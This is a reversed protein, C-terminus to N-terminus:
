KLRPLINEQILIGHRELLTGTGRELAMEALEYDIYAKIENTRSETLREEADLVHFTTRLGAERRNIEGEFREQTLQRARRTAEIRKEATQMDRVATRLEVLIQDELARKQLTLRRKELEARNIAAQATRREIPWEFALGISWDHFDSSRLERNAGSFTDDLGTLAGTATVDLKPLLDNEAKRLSQEQSQMLSGFERYEPRKSRATAWAGELLSRADVPRVVSRPADAPMIQVAERLMSPDILRKLRDMAAQMANEATLIGERQSAVGAEAETVDVRALVGKEFKKQNEELLREAVKEAQRKVELTERALVLDWYSQHVAVVQDVIAKELRDIAAQRGLRALIVGTYQGVEGRGRLLPMTLSLALSENYTPNIASSFFANSATRDTRFSLDYAMGFPLVRRVGVASSFRDSDIDETDFPNSSKSVNEGNTATSYLVHDFAGLASLVNQDDIWPQYRSVEIDVNHNLALHLCQRLSLRLTVRSAAPQVPQPAPPDQGAARHVFLLSFGLILPGTFRM